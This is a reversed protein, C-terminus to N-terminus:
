KDLLEKLQQSRGPRRLKRLAKAEIQRIRERTVAFRQGVEELTHDTAEGVGFRLRLVREERPTLTALARRTEDRLNVSMVAEVPAMARADEVFDGLCADEEDGVPTELSVPQKVIRLVGRVKDMPIEMKSALEETTPERGTEQVFFRSTRVVKNITEIMHVPIRITRAQDAIARAMAQRIWWTAYTSFKYGRQYEFKDVARMLGINGEQVLDLLPLGRNTYKKAISVVLRLNAEILEKKGARVQTEAERVRVLAKRLASANMGAAREARRLRRGADTIETAIVAAQDRSVGLVNSVRRSSTAGKEFSRCLRVIEGVPRRLRREFATIYVQAEEVEALLRRMEGVAADTQRPHLRLAEVAAVLQERRKAQAAEQRQRAAGAAGRVRRAAEGKEMERVLREVRAIQKLFEACLEEEDQELTESDEDVDRLVDRARIEGAELRGGLSILFRRAIPTSFVEAVFRHQAEEICRAIRVEGERDLLSVSGMERLYIRVPDAGHQEGGDTRATSDDRGRGGGPRASEGTSPTTDDQEWTAGGLIDLADELGGAAAGERAYDRNRRARRAAPGPRSKERSVHREMGGTTRGSM